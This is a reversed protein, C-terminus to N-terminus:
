LQQITRFIIEPKVLKRCILLFMLFVIELIYEIQSRNKEQDTRELLGKTLNMQSALSYAAIKLKTKEAESSEQAKAVLDYSTKNKKILSKNQEIEKLYASKYQDVM